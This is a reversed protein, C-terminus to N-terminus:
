SELVAVAAAYDQTHSLSLHIHHAARNAFLEQARDHLVVYPKGSAERKVEIDQWGMHAGIGTGFAKSVAEKAAFRAAYFPAPDRHQRCYDIESARMVRLLFRDGFREAAARIRAVEIVDIGTGLIM